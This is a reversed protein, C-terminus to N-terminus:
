SDGDEVQLRCKVAEVVISQPIRLNLKMLPHKKTGRKSPRPEDFRSIVFGAQSLARAYDSLTRHFSTTQFHQTLRKMKWPVIFRHNDFYRDVKYYLANEPMRRDTQKKFAWEGYVKGDRTRTEFCPYPIAFVFRGRRKLIRFAEKVADQYNEIDQLAMFCTVVDFVKSRFMHLDGADALLYKIGLREKEELEVAAEIMKKSFDVGTVKAGKRAMIRCNYGEGCGLDLIKKARLDGLTELTAPNNMEDRYYDKGARLFNLWAEVADDWQKKLDSM